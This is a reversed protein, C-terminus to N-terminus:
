SSLVSSPTEYVESERPSLGGLNPTIFSQFNHFHPLPLTNSAENGHLPIAHPQYNIIMVSCQMGTGRPPESPESSGGGGGRLLYLDAKVNARRLIDCDCVGHSGRM